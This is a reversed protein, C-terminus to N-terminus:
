RCCGNSRLARIRASACHKTGVVAVLAEIKALGATAIIGLEALHARLAKVAQTRQGGLLAGTNLVM